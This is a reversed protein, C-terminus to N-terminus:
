EPPVADDEDSSVWGNLIEFLVKLPQDIIDGGFEHSMVRDQILLMKDAANDSAMRLVDRGTFTKRLVVKKGRVTITKTDEAVEKKTM